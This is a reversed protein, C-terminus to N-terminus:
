DDESDDGGKNWGATALNEEWPSLVSEPAPPVSTECIDIIFDHLLWNVIDGHTVVGFHPAEPITALSVTAGAEKLQRMFRESYELPYAIDELCHVLKVPVCIQSLEDKSYEKRNNLFGIVGREYQEFKAPVVNKLALPLTIGDLARVLSNLNNNCGLQQAGYISAFITAMDFRGSKAGEVWVDAVERLGSAADPLEALGLPSVLFLSLVKSPYYVALSIGLMTGMSLGVIHCAPLRVEDMFLALDEAADNANFGEPIGDTTTHGHLRLDLAVYNFRRIQPDEFQRQLMEQGYFVAHLFLLTPLSNDISTASSASPTSITYNFSTKGTSSEVMTTPM